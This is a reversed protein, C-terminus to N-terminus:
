ATIDDRLAEPAVRQLISAYKSLLMEAYPDAVAAASAELEPALAKPEVGMARVEYAKRARHEFCIARAMALAVGSATVLTGHHALIAMDADGYARALAAASQRTSVVGEYEDYLVAKGGAGAGSQDLLPPLQAACAWLTGYPPHNHLACVIDPRAKHLELHFVITPNVDGAGEVVTGDDAIRVFDNPTLEDWFVGLRPVLLTGDDRDRVSVHGALGDDYGQAALTRCAVVLRQRETLGGGLAATRVTTM